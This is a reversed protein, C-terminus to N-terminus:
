ETIYFAEWGQLPLLSQEATGGKKAPQKKLRGDRESYLKNVRYGPIYYRM